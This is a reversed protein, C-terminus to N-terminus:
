LRNLQSQDFSNLTLGHAKIAAREEEQLVTRLPTERELCLLDLYESVSMERIPVISPRNYDSMDLYLLPEVLKGDFLCFAHRYVRKGVRFRVRSVGDSESFRLAPSGDYGKSVSVDTAFFKLM